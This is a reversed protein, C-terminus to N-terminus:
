VPSRGISPRFFSRLSPMWLRCSSMPRCIERRVGPDYLLAGNTLVAVPVATIEKLRPSLRVWAAHHLPEGSGALTVYDPVPGSDSFYEELEKLIAATPIYERRKRTKVTTSGVECYICDFPCTKAPILDVGPVPGIPPFSGSWFSIEYSHSPSHFVVM